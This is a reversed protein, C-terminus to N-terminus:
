VFSNGTKGLKYHVVWQSKRFLKIKGFIRIWGMKKEHDDFFTWDDIFQIGSNWHELEESKQIGWNFIVGKELHNKRRFSRAYLGGKQMLKAWKNNIVECVLECGPFTDQLKLILQKVENEHLYELLGEAIIIVPKNKCMIISTWNYDLVSTSIMHYRDTEKFFNNRIKIVEPLDLDYWEMHGNDLRDYRTDMGCGLNVVIGDPNQKVFQQVYLDFRRMRLSMLLANYKFNRSKLFKSFNYSHSLTNVIELAKRDQIVPNKSGTEYARCFLTLLATESVNQLINM